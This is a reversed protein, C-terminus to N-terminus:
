SARAAEINAAPPSMVRHFQQQVNHLNASNQEDSSTFHHEPIMPQAFGFPAFSSPPNYLNLINAASNRTFISQSSIASSLPTLASPSTSFFRPPPSALFSNGYSGHTPSAPNTANVDRRVFSSKPQLPDDGFRSQLPDVASQSQQQQLQGGGASTPTRVGLPNKSYSLRIGTGKVLGSLTHGHLNHLAKTAFHVDDFEVFCMPGNNKQRFCLRRYGPQSSFLDRLKDELQEVTVTPLNGVYLTNIPPNQDVIRGATSSTNSAPSPLQPSTDGGNMSLTLEGLSGAIEVETTSSGVLGDSQSGNVAGPSISGSSIQHEVTAVENEFSLQPASAAPSSLRAPTHQVTATAVNDWPGVAEDVQASAGKMEGSRFLGNSTGNMSVPPRLAESYSQAQFNSFPDFPTVGARQRLEKERGEDDGRVNRTSVTGFSMTNGRRRAEDERERLMSMSPEPVLSHNTRNVGLPAPTMADTSNAYVDHGNVLGKVVSQQFVGFKPAIGAMAAAGPAAVSPVASNSPIAGVGRKTHLNKKAMEAKLVAGKEMDIRKGQLHDKAAIAEHRTRFKAFGIIQKRPPVGGNNGFQILGSSEDGSNSAPWSSVAGSDGGNGQNVGVLSYPDNTGGYTRGSNAVYTTNDKNPIKLTAAEFGQSFTFMNQFEREQMDDPFGVVFITCIEEQGLAASNGPTASPNSTNQPPNTGVVNNLGNPVHSPGNVPIHPGFPTQSSLQVIASYQTAPNFGKNSAIHQPVNSKGNLGALPHSSPLNSNPHGYSDHFQKFGPGAHGPGFDFAPTAHSQLPSTIGFMETPNQYYNDRLQPQVVSHNPQHRQRMATNYSPLPLFANPDFSNSKTPNLSQHKSPDMEPIYEFNNSNMNSIIGNQSNVMTYMPDQNSSM